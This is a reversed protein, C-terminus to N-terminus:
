TFVSWVILLECIIPNRTSLMKMLLWIQQPPYLSYAFTKLLLKGFDCSVLIIAQNKYESQLNILANIIKKLLIAYHALIWGWVVLFGDNSVARILLSEPYSVM